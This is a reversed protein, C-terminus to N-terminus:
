VVGERDWEEEKRAFRLRELPINLKLLLESTYLDEGGVGKCPELSVRGGAEGVREDDEVEPGIEGVEAVVAVAVTANM